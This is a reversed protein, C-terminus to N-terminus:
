RMGLQTSSKTAVESPDQAVWPLGAGPTYKLGLLNTPMSAKEVRSGTFLLVM